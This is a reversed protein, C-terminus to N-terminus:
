RQFLGLPAAFLTSARVVPLDKVRGGRILIATNGCTTVKVVSTRFFGFRQNFTSPM